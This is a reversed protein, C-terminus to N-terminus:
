VCQNTGSLQTAKKKDKVWPQSWVEFNCKLIPCNSVCNSDSVNAEIVYLVGAVIQQKARLINIKISDSNIGSVENAAFQAASVIAKYTDSSEDTLDVPSQGGLLKTMNASKSIVCIAFILAILVLRNTM